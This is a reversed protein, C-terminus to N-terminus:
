VASSPVVARGRDARWRRGFRSGRPARPTARRRRQLEPHARAAVQRSSGGLRDSSGKGKCRQETFRTGHLQSTQSNKRRLGRGITKDGLRDPDQFFAVGLKAKVADAAVRQLTQSKGAQEVRPVEGSDPDFFHEDLQRQDYPTQPLRRTGQAGQLGVQEQADVHRGARIPERSRQASTRARVDVVDRRRNPKRARPSRTPKRTAVVSNQGQVRKFHRIKLAKTRADHM